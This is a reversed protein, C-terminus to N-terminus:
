PIVLGFYMGFIRILGVDHLALIFLVVGLIVGITKLPKTKLLYPISPYERQYRTIDRITGVIGRKGDSPNKDGRMDLEYQDLFECVKENLGDLKSEIESNCM